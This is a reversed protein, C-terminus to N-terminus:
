NVFRFRQSLNVLKLVKYINVSVGRLVVRQGAGNLLDAIEELTQLSESTMHLVRSFDLLLDGEGANLQERVWTLAQATNESNLRFAM